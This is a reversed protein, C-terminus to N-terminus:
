APERATQARSFTGPGRQPHPPSPTGMEPSLFVREGCGGGVSPSEMAPEVLARHVSLPTRRPGRSAHTACPPLNPTWGGGAQCGRGGLERMEEEGRDGGRGWHPGHQIEGRVVLHPRPRPGPPAPDRGDPDRIRRKEEPPRVM